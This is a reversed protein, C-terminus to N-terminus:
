RVLLWEIRQWYHMPIIGKLLSLDLKEEYNKQHFVSGAKIGPKEHNKSGIGAEM